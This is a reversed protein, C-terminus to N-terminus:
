GLSTKRVKVEFAVIILTRKASTRIRNRARAIWRHTQLAFRAMKETRRVIEIFETTNKRKQKKVTWLDNALIGGNFVLLAAFPVLIGFINRIWFCWIAGFDSMMFWTPIIMYEAQLGICELNREVRVEWPFTSKFISGIFIAM